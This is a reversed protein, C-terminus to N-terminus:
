EFAARYRRGRCRPRVMGSDTETVTLRGEWELNACRGSRRCHSSARGAGPSPPCSSHTPSRSCPSGTRACTRTSTPEPVGDVTAVVPVDALHVFVQLGLTTPHDFAAYNDYILDYLEQLDIIHLSEPLLARVRERWHEDAETVKV